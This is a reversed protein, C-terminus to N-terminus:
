APRAPGRAEDDDSDGSAGATDEDDGPQQIRGAGSVHTELQKPRTLLDVAGMGSIDVRAWDTPRLTAAGAGSIAVEAGATKLEGLDAEGAGSVDLKVTKTEGVAEIEAHGSASLSLEDQKYGSIKLRNAGNLEFSTVKPATLTVHLSAWRAGDVLSIRGNEV